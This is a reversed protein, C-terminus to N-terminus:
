LSPMREALLLPRHRNKTDKDGLGLLEYVSGGVGPRINEGDKERDVACFVYQFRDAVSPAFERRLKKKAEVHMAPAVVFVPVDHRLKSLAEILNTRVVCAGSIISKVVVVARVDREDLPEEYRSIIPATDRTKNRSNWYCFVRVAHKGEVMAEIVGRGLYDADEVTTVLLIQGDRPLAPELQAGLDRGVRRMAARYAETAQEEAATLLEAFHGKVADTVWPEYIRSAESM